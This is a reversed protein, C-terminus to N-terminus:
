CTDTVMLPLTPTNSIFVCLEFTLYDNAATLDHVKNYFTDFICATWLSDGLCQGQPCKAICCPDNKM